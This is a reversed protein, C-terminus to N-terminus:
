NLEVPVTFSLDPVFNLPASGCFGRAASLETFKEFGRWCSEDLVYRLNSLYGFIKPYLKDFESINGQKQVLESLHATNYLFREKLAQYFEQVCTEDLRAERRVAWVAYVFPLNQWEYWLQGLDYRLIWKRPHAFLADNGILLAADHNELMTKPNSPMPLLQAQIGYKGKLILNLLHTSTLSEETVAIEAGNLDEIKKKSFLTVSRVFDHSAIGLDPLLLYDNPSKLYEMSSIPAADIRGERMMQNIQAPTGSEFQFKESSEWGGYYPLCNLYKIRGIRM